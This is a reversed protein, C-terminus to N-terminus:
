EARLVVAPNVRAARRAPVLCAFAGVAGLFLAAGLYPVPDGPGVAFLLGRILRAALISAPLGLSLGIAVLVFGSRVVTGVVGAMSSGLAMRVGIEHRRRAVQHALVGYLGVGALLLAMAAFAGLLAMVARRDSVSTALVEKMPAAAALPVDPDLGRLADRIPGTVTAPDSATRVALRMSAPSRQGYAFYMTVDRGEELSAAAVDGVVGVVEAVWPEDAGVDVGLERGLPRQGPFLGEALSESLIIVNAGDRRDEISVDRGLLIPIGMAEFYGPLVMRQYASRGTAGGQGWEAPPAVRVNNGPDRVPLMSVLGVAEVGPIEAVLERLRGYFIPRKAVDQYKGPPLHVEATLLKEADFGTEVDYLRLLSRVLFGSMLMLVVTLTVQCVVLGSRFRAATVGGSAGSRGRLEGAAGSGASITAPLAGFVTVTAAAVLVALGIGPLSLGTEVGAVGDLSVLRLTAAQIWGALATGLAASAGVLLVGEALYQRFIRGRGAGLSSRIAMESRRGSGRALLVGGVNACAIVLLLAMAAGLLVLTPRYRQSVAERLPTLALGKDRNSDPYLEALRASIGDVEAQAASLSTGPALRGILMWNHFQRAGAFPGSRTMPRWVDAPVDFRFSRPLVGIVTTPTGDLVLTQGLVERASGFRAQWFGHSLIAVAAAGPEGEEARFTRGLFPEVGLTAFLDSSAYPARVREAEGSGTLTAQLEFPTYAALGSLTTAQDRYDYYDPASVTRGISGEYTVRGLVLREPEPYPLARLLSADLVGLMAVNGGIGLGLTLLVTLLFAPEALFSRLAIRTDQLWDDIVRAGRVDRVEEKIREVGGFAILAERRAEEPSAGEAIRERIEMELHFRVEDDLETEVSQKRLVVDL